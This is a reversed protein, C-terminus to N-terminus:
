CCPQTAKTQSRSVCSWGLSSTTRGTAACVHLRALANDHSHLHLFTAQQMFPPAVDELSLWCLKCLEELV